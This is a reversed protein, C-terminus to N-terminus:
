AHKLRVEQTGQGLEGRVTDARNGERVSEAANVELLVVRHGDQQLNHALSEETTRWWRKRTAVVVLSRAPLLKRIAALRDRALVMQIRTSIPSAHCMARLVGILHETSVDPRDIPLPFPVVNVYVLTVASDPNNTMEAAASLAAPVLEHSPCPIFIELPTCITGSVVGSKVETTERM